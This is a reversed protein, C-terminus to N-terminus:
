KTGMMKALLEYSHIRAKEDYIPMYAMLEDFGYKAQEEALISEVDAPSGKILFRRLYKEQLMAEEELTLLYNQADEPSILGISHMHLSNLEANRALYDAEETSDALIILYSFMVTPQDFHDSAKFNDRYSRFVEPPTEVGFFKAFSYGLGMEAAKLASQGSSGLMWPQPITTPKVPMAKIDKYLGTNDQQRDQLFNLITQAEEYLHDFDIPHGQSLAMMGKYDTGPARGIGLDIRNPALATLTKFIEAVRLPSYNVIMTGGTGLRIQQTQTALYALFIEPAASALRETGHHESAWYRHYGLQEAGQVLRVTEQYRDDPTQNPRLPLLDHIGLKM